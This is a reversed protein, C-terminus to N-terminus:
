EEVKIYGDEYFNCWGVPAVNGDIYTGMVIFVKEWGIRKDPRSSYERYEEIHIMDILCISDENIYIAIDMLTSIDRMTKVADVLSGRHHRYQRESVFEDGYPRTVEVKTYAMGERKIKIVTKPGDPIINGDKDCKTFVM